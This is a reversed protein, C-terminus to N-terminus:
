EPPDAPPALPLRVTFRVLGAPSDDLVVTGHHAQAVERAIALGLGTGGDTRSRATDLRAFREFIRERETAPIPEGDNTVTILALGEFSRVKTSVVTLAHRSANDVLSNVVRALHTRVGMVRVDPELDLEVPISDTRRKVEQRVLDGLDIEEHVTTATTGVRALLLLDSVIAELRGTDRLAASIAEDCDEPHLRASELQARIGTIPTRLEHSADAAFQRQQELSRQLRALTANATAALRAVEDNGPPEPVRKNLDGITIEALETTIAKVPRLARGAVRWAIWAIGAVLLAAQIAYFVELIRGNLVSPAARAAYVVVADPDTTTRIATVYVCGGDPLPCSIGSQIREEPGPWIHSLLPLDEAANSSAIIKRQPTVVQILDIGDKGPPIPSGLQHSRVDATVKSAAQTASEWMAHEVGKRTVVDAAVAVPILVLASIAAALLMLRARISLDRLWPVSM